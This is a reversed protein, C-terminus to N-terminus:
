NEGYSIGAVKRWLFVFGILEMKYLFGNFYNQEM